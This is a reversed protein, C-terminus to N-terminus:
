HASATPLGREFSRSSSNHSERSNTRGSRFWDGFFVKALGLDHQGLVDDDETMWPHNLVENLSLRERPDHKLLNRVLNQADPSPVVVEFLNQIGTPATGTLCMYIIAGLSWLDVRHDHYFESEIEPAVFASWGKNMQNFRGVRGTLPEDERIMQAYQVLRLSVNFDACGLQVGFVVVLEILCNNHSRSVTRTM